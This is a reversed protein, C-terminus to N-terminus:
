FLQFFFELQKSKFLTRLRVVVNDTKQRKAVIVKKDPPNDDLKM